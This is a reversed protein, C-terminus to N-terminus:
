LCYLSVGPFGIGLFFPVDGDALYVLYGGGELLKIVFINVFTPVPAPLGLGM